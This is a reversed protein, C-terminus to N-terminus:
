KNTIRRITFRRIIKATDSLSTQNQLGLIKKASSVYKGSELKRGILLERAAVAGLSGGINATTGLQPLGDLSEGIKMSSGILRPSINSLGVIRMTLKQRDADTMAGSLLKDIESDSLKGNFPKTGDRDYREVDIVSKDGVDTVMVLPIRNKQAFQRLLAKIALNDIEDFIVDPKIEALEDLHSGNVGDRFHVQAIYPDTESLKIAAIDIKEMGINDFGARIRNLNTPSLKDFDGLVFTGGIGGMALQEVVSSGVSLGFVAVKAMLLKKQEADTIMDKNRYTRLDEHDSQESYRVLQQNWSFNFWRGFRLGRATIDGVFEARRATDLKQDPHRLSFLDSAIETSRDITTKIRGDEFRRSVESRDAWSSFDFEDPQAWVPIDVQRDRIKASLDAESHDLYNM